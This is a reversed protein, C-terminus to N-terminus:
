HGTKAVVLGKADVSRVGQVGKAVAAAKEAQARSDVKGSLAVTGNVTDVDIMLGSVDKAALLEAKVKTTIWTDSVPQTSEGTAPPPNREQAVSLAPVGIMLAAALMTTTITKM